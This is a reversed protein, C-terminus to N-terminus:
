GRAHLLPHSQGEVSVQSFQISLEGTKNCTIFALRDSPLNCPNEHKLKEEWSGDLRKEEITHREEM